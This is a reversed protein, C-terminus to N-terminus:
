GMATGLGCTGLIWGPPGLGAEGIRLAGVPLGCSGPACVPGPLTGPPFTRLSPPVPSLPGGVAVM